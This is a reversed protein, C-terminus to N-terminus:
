AAVVVAQWHIRSTLFRVLHPLASGLTLAAIVLGLAVGRGRVFWTSMLKLAPPYIGALSMGTVFRAIMLGTTSPMWLLSLNASAAVLASVGMLTRLPVVDPLSIFSSLLAGTVFGLQVANTLWSVQVASLHWLPVLEPTIATASFWTTMCLVVGACILGLMQWRALDPPGEETLM